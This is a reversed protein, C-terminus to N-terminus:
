ARTRSIKIGLKQMRVQLTSRKMGLRLAAGHPGAVVWNTQELAKLIRQREAQEVAAETQDGEAMRTSHNNRNTGANSVLPMRLDSLPVRLVSGESTIVAREIVNQLERVNGPWAYQVLGKMTESSITEIQKNIRRAFQAAFHRVLLPIDEPRERLPPVRIPFVNM